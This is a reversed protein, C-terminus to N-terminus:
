PRVPTCMRRDEWLVARRSRRVPVAATEKVARATARGRDSAPAAVRVEPRSSAGATASAGLPTTTATSLSAEAPLEENIAAALVPYVESVDELDTGRLSIDLGRLTLGFREVLDHSQHLHHVDALLRRADADRFEDLGVDPGAGSDM